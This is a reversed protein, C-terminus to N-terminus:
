GLKVLNMQFFRKRSCTANEFQIPGGGARFEIEYQVIDNVDDISKIHYKRGMKDEYTGRSVAYDLSHGVACAIGCVIVYCAAAFMHIIQIATPM